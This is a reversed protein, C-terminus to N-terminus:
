RMLGNDAMWKQILAAIRDSNKDMMLMHGNGTVGLKPLEWWDAVGGEARLAAAYGQSAPVFRTWVASQAIFDGWVVLHPVAKLKGGAAAEPKPAGSPEVSILAKVKDPAALAANFGFNGGQSHTLVVCPCVKQVLQNYAAQIQADTSAWRPVGQKFFQDFAELPFLQGPLAVREAPNLKYSGVAGIRFDEWAQKKTRFLPESTFIEPYRAWSARGREVADSVYVDHGARLFFLQWGPQGDPKTEWTVGTLGGGHWLLLPYRAKPQALKVYQVYMQEVEFDGNPDVKIPASGATFVVDRTPLGTLSVARGGVHFSGVEAVSLSDARALTATLVVVVGLMLGVIRMHRRGNMRARSALGLTRPAFRRARLRCRLMASASVARRRRHPVRRGRAYLGEVILASPNVPTVAVARVIAVAGMSQGYLVLPGAPQFTRRVYEVAAVVDAAEHYGISTWDGASGGHGRHDVLFTSFGLAHLGHFLLVVGRAGPHAIWWAELEMGDATSFRHSTSVLGLDSPARWLKPRPLAVGALIVRAKDLRTLREPPPTRAGQGAFHLMSWAHFYAVVNLLLFAAVVAAVAGIM